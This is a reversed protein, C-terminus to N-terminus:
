AAFRGLQSDLDIPELAYRWVHTYKSWPGKVPGDFVVKPPIPGRWPSAALRDRVLRHGQPSALFLMRQEELLVPPRPNAARSRHELLLEVRSAELQAKMEAEEPTAGSGFGYAAVYDPLELCRIALAVFGAFHPQEIFVVTSDDRDVSWHDLAGNWWADATHYEFSEAMALRRAQRSWIGPFAAMGKTSNAYPYGYLVHDPGSVTEYYAWRELAESIAKARSELRTTGVGSGDASHFLCLDDALPPRLAEHLTARSLHWTRGLFPAQGHELEAIPGGKEAVFAYRLPALNLM